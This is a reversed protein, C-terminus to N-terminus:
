HNIGLLEIEFILTAGAPITGGAGRDGYALDSPIYLKWKSGVPMLKLAETWGKIVQTVGLDIAEGRKYSNDFETGDLLTGIYNVKVNNTDTPIPGTGKTLIEYQLGSPLEFVGDRLKNKALFEQGEKKAGAARQESFREDAAMLLSAIQQDNFLVSDKKFVAEVARSLLQTNISTAGQEQYFKALSLGLAYSITDNFSSLTPVPKTVAKTGVKASGSNQAFSAGSALLLCSLSLILNKRM